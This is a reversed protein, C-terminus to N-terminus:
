HDLGPHFTVSLNLIVLSMRTAYLWSRDRFVASSHQFNQLGEIVIAGSGGGQLPLEVLVHVHPHYWYLGPPEDSPFHVDYHFAHSSNVLTKM